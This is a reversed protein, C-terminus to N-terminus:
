QLLVGRVTQTFVATAEYQVLTQGEETMQGQVTRAAKCIMNPVDRSSSGVVLGLALMVLRMHSGTRTMPAANYGMGRRPSRTLAKAPQQFHLELPCQSRTPTTQSNLANGVNGTQCGATM